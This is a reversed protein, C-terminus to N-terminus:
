NSSNQLMVCKEKFIRPVRPSYVRKSDLPRPPAGWGVAKTREAVVDTEHHSRPPRRHDVEDEDDDDDNDDGGEM